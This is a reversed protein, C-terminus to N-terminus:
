VSKPQRAYVARILSGMTESATNLVRDAEVKVASAAEVVASLADLTENEAETMLSRVADM